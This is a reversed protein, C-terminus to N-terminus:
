FFGFMKHFFGKIAGFFGSNNKYSNTSSANLNNSMVGQDIVSFATISTGNVAGQVVVRDGVSINSVTSTANAKVITASSADVTYTINSANTVTLSAGNTSAVTGGVVPQGNGQIIPNQPNGVSKGKGNMMGGRLIGDRISTATLSTGSLTGRATITDGVVLDSITSTANNKIVVANSADVTYTTTTNTTGNKRTSTVTLTNGSIGAVTGVIGPVGGRPGMRTYNVVGKESTQNETNTQASAINAVLLGAAMVPVLAFGLLKIKNM